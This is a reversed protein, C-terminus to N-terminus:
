RLSTPTQRQWLKFSCRTWRWTTNSNKFRRERMRYSFVQLADVDKTLLKVLKGCLTKTLVDHVYGPTLPDNQWWVGESLCGMWPQDLGLKNAPLMVTQERRRIWLWRSSVGAAETASKMARRKSTGTICLPINARWFRQVMPECKVWWMSHLCASLLEFNAEGWGQHFKRGFNPRFSQLLNLNSMFWVLLRKM